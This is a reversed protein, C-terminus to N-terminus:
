ADTTKEEQKIKYKEYLAIILDKQKEPDVTNTILAILHTLENKLEQGKYKDLNQYIRKLDEHDNLADLIQDKKESMAFLPKLSNIFKNLM